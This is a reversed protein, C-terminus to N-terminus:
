AAPAAVAAAPAPAAQAAPATRVTNMNFIPTCRASLITPYMEISQFLRSRWGYSTVECKNMGPTITATEMDTVYFFNGRGFLSWVNHALSNRVLFYVGGDSCDQARCGKVSHENTDGGLEQSSTLYLTEDKKYTGTLTMNIGDAVPEFVSSLVYRSPAGFAGPILATACTATLMFMTAARGRKFVREGTEKDTKYSVRNWLKGYARGLPFLVYDCLPKTFNYVTAGLQKVVRVTRGIFGIGERMAKVDSALADAGTREKLADIDRLMKKIKDNDETSM